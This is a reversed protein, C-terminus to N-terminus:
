FDLKGIWTYAYAPRGLGGIPPVKKRAVLNQTLYRQMTARVGEITYHLADALDHATVYKDTLLNRYMAKTDPQRYNGTSNPARKRPRRVKVTQTSVALMQAFNM